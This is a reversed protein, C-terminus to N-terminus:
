KNEPNIIHIANQHRKSQNIRGQRTEDAVESAAPTMITVGRDEKHGFLENATREEQTTDVHGTDVKKVHKKVFAVSRNLDKALDSADLDPNNEIYFKEVKTIKGTKKSM